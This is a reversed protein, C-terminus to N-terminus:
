FVGGDRGSWGGNAALLQNARARTSADLGDESAADRASWGGTCSAYLRARAHRPRKNKSESPASALKARGRTVGWARMLLLM